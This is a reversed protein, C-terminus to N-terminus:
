TTRAVYKFKRRGKEPLVHQIMESDCAGLRRFNDRGQQLTLGHNCGSGLSELDDLDCGDDEWFCVPCIDWMGREELTFHDCCPCQFLEM